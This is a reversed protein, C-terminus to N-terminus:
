RGGLAAAAGIGERDERLAMEVDREDDMAAETAATLLDLQEDLVAGRDPPVISRLDTLAAKLRRTVQPSGAGALRIEDFALHVYADWNMTFVALRVEGEEDRYVGDPMPRRALQRLLDHIRDLAQVSTTPDQLPSDALSREAI